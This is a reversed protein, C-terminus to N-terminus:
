ARWKLRTSHGDKEKPGNMVHLTFEGGLPHFRAQVWGVPQVQKFSYGLAPLNILHIGERQSFGFVHSHGYVIAKVKPHPRILDFLRPADLLDGDGDGLTHHECLITPRNDCQKLYGSLWDRQAKGLLGFAKNVVLQSDLAVLRVTPTEFITVYKGSVKQQYKSGGFVQTFNGRDDHNGMSPLFPLSALPALLPKLSQYDERHGELRALDGCIMVGDVDLPKIQKVASRLNGHPDYYFHGKPPTARNDVAPIHTDSLFTWCSVDSSKAPKPSPTQCESRQGLAGLAM